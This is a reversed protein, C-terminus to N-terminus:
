FPWEGSKFETLMKLMTFSQDSFGGGFQIHNKSPDLPTPRYGALDFAYVPAKVAGVADHSQMDSFIVVRDQGKYHKRLAAGISTGHGYKGNRRNVESLHKLVSGGRAINEVGSSSAFEVLTVEDGKKALAAAFLGAAQERTVTSKQSLTAQMSGSTDTLILTSGGLSPINQTSLDLATSLAQSWRDSAVNLYASLFRFPFQRSKAVQESDTLKAIVANVTEDSIGAQDFNRLNRLLAMYGMSPIIAEWVEADLKGFYESATEWTFGAAALKEPTKLLKRRESEPLERLAINESVMPLLEMSVEALDGGFRRELSLKYLASQWPAKAKPHVLNIVDAFRFAKGSGDYKLLSYESYLGNVIADAVGRKIAQPIKRGYTSIWYALLEAPEDARSLTAAIMQRGNPGGAKVYEAASVISASRMNASNRLWPIMRAVWSPDEATVQHVLSQFRADRQGASEYFTDERVLNSIALLYLESKADRVFAPAGEHTVTRNKTTTIPSKVAAKATKTTAFKTM